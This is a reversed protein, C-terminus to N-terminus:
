LQIESSGVHITDISVEALQHRSGFILFESKSENLMHQYRAMRHRIDSICAEMARVAQEQSATSRPWFSLYIYNRLTPMDMPIQYINSWVISCVLYMYMYFSLDLVAEKLSAVLFISTRPSNDSLSWVNNEGLFSKLCSLALDTIFVNSEMLDAM